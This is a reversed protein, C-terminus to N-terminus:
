ISGSVISYYLYLKIFCGVPRVDWLLMKQFISFSGQKTPLSAPCPFSGESCPCGVWDQVLTRENWWACVGYSNCRLHQRISLTLIPPFSHPLIVLHGRAGPHIEQFGWPAGLVTQSFQYIGFLKFPNEEMKSNCKESRFMRFQLIKM